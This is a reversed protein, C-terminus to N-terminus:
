LSPSHSECQREPTIVLAYTILDGMAQTLAPEAQDTRVPLFTVKVTLTGSKIRQNVFKEFEQLTEYNVGRPQGNDYFFGIPNLLVLARINRRKVIGDLDNTHKDYHLPLVVEATATTPKEQGGAPAATERSAEKKSCCGVLLFATLGTAVCVATRWKQVSGIM